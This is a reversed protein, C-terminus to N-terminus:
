FILYDRVWKQLAPDDFLLSLLGNEFEDGLTAVRAFLESDGTETPGLAKLEDRKAQDNLIGLFEDYATLARAGTDVADHEIFADAVRDLPPVSVREDLFELMDGARYGYCELVPLLGGALLLKRSLRLKANRLGWGEGHRARMKSEFDVAITRWYRILDNLLFRPPRYDKVNASLYSGILARRADAHVDAGCVPVSELIFLKRRTLNRNSDAERGIKGQLDELWIHKGFIGERGPSEGDLREAVQAETPRAEEREPGAFLIFSDNDSSETVECRGWSGTLVVTADEDISIEAFLSRRKALRQETRHRASSINRLTIEAAEELGRVGRASTM